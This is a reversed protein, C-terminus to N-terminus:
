PRHQRIEGQVVTKAWVEFAHSWCLDQGASLYNLAADAVMEDDGIADLLSQVLSGSITDLKTEGSEAARGSKRTEIANAVITKGYSKVTSISRRLRSGFFSETIFWLPNQFREATAGSAYEFSTTFDDDAHMEM